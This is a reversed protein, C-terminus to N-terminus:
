GTWRRHFRGPHWLADVLERAGRHPEDAVAGTRHWANTRPGPPLPGAPMRSTPAEDLPAPLHRFASISPSM